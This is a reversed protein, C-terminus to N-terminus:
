TYCIIKNQVLNTSYTREHKARKILLFEDVSLTAARATVIDEKYLKSYAPTAICYFGSISEVRGSQLQPAFLIETLYKSRM